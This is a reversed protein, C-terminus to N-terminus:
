RRIDRDRIDRDRFDRSGRAAPAPGSTWGRQSGAGRANEWGRNQAPRSNKGRAKGKGKRDDMGFGGKGGYRRHGKGDGGMDWRGSGKGDGRSDKLGYGGHKNDVLRENMDVAQVGRDALTLALRQLPTPEAHQMLLFKSSEDWFATIEERIMMKSVVSHVTKSPLEFMGALQELQFADYISSYAFLYTRLAEVKMKELIMAKVKDGNEPHGVDIHEWIKLNEIGKWAIQWDGRQLAKACSVVAEKPNEAPGNFVQKDWVELARRLVKSIIGRKNTPDISQMALNPVELLMASMHHASDLVELNIYMHYPMQRLREAREQEPTRDQFKQFSLGQALLERSKGHMCVDMLCSHADQIKGLRFACLGMQALVRNFLIQTHIDSDKAKEEIKTLHLLDRGAQFRDHLALHYAQLLLARYQSREDGRTNVFRCLKNMLESSNEPWIWQPKEIDPVSNQIAEYVARNLVDPKYYLQEMFRLAISGLPVPQKSKEFFDLVRKLLVMFKTSNCLIEQYESGYVDVTFQLAKYLEDDLKEVVSIFLEQLRPHITPDENFENAQAMIEENTLGQEKLDDYSELLLPTMKNVKELAENWLDIRMAAFASGTNDFDSSVMASYIHLQPRPGMKEAHPMLAALKEAYTKREFGRRGRSQQVETVKKILQDPTYEDQENEAKHPKQESREDKSHKKGKPNQPKRNKDKDAKEEEDEKRKRKQLAEPTILWRLMKRERATDEDVGDGDSSGSSYSGGASVSHGDSDSDSDSSSASSSSDSDSDSNSSDSDDSGSSGSSSSGKGDAVDSENDSESHDDEPEDSEYDAPNEKLSDLETQYARNGKRVKARLTNFSKAKNETLREGKNAKNEAHKKHLDEIYSEIVSIAKVFANPPGGDQEVQIKLKDLMKLMGEYDVILLSFDDIKMHNKMARIKEALLSYRKDTSSRVVRKQEVEDESSSDQEAWRVPRKTPAAAAVPQEDGSSSSSSDSESSSGGGWFRNATM